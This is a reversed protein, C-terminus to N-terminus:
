RRRSPRRSRRSNRRLIAQRPTPPRRTNSTVLAHSIPMQLARLVRLSPFVVDQKAATESSEEAARPLPALPSPPRYQFLKEVVMTKRTDIAMSMTVGLRCIGRRSNSKVKERLPPGPPCFTLLTLVLASSRQATVVLGLRGATTRCRSKVFYARRIVVSPSRSILLWRNRSAPRLVASQRSFSRCITASAAWRTRGRRGM